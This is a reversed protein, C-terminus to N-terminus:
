QPASLANVKARFKENFGPEWSFVGAADPLVVQIYTAKGGSRDIAAVAYDKVQEQTVPLMFLPLEWHEMIQKGRFETGAKRASLLSDVVDHLLYMGNEHSMGFLILEPLGQSHLGISYSFPASGVVGRIMWGSAAIVSESGPDLPFVPIAPDASTFIPM